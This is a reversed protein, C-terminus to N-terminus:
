REEMKAIAAAAVVAIAQQYKQSSLEDPRSDAVPPAIEIAVAPAAIHSLPLLPAVASASAIKAESFGSVLSAALSQSRSLYGAQASEWPVFPGNPKKNKQEAVPASMMATYVRVGTGPLGAHISIYLAARQANTAVARQDYDITNDGDRLLVATIGRNRLETRLKRAISLTIDKELLKDSFRAGPEDGGHSPDIMVFFPVAGNPVQKQAAPASSAAPVPSPVTGATGAISAVPSAVPAPATAQPAASVSINKGGDSLSAVLPAVGTVVIEVAGNHESVNVATILKDNYTFSDAGFTVPDRTFLLHVKGNETSVTPNVAAPFGLILNNEPRKIEITFTEDVNGVFLRRGAEHFECHQGLYKELLGAMARLPVLLHGNEAVAKTPLLLQTKGVRALRKGEGFEGDIGNLRFHFTGRSANQELKGLPELLEALGAYEQKDKDIVALDYTKNAAFVTVKKDEASHSVQPSQLALLLMLCTLCGLRLFSVSYPFRFM